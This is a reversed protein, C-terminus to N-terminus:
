FEWGRDKIFLQDDESLKNLPVTITSGDAKELTTETHNSKIFTAEITFKGDASTWIRTKAKRLAAKADKISQARKEEVTLTPVEVIQPSIEITPPPIEPIQYTNNPINTIVPQPNIDQTKITPTQPTQDKINITTPKSKNIPQPRNSPRDLTSVGICLSIFTSICTILLMSPLGIIFGAIAFGKPGRQFLGIFSLFVGPVALLGCTVLGLLSLIFGAVGLSSESQQEIIITQPQTM